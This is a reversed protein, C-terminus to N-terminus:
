LKTLNPFPELSPIATFSVGVCLLESITNDSAHRKCSCGSRTCMELVPDAQAFVCAAMVLVALLVVLSRTPLAGPLGEGKSVPRPSM